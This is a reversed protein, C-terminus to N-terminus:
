VWENENTKINMGLAQMAIWKAKGSPWTPHAQVLKSHLAALQKQSEQQHKLENM